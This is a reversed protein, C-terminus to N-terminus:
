TGTNLGISGTVNLKTAAATTLTAIVNATSGDSQLTLTEVGAVTLTAAGSVNNIVVTASDASGTVDNFTVVQGAIATDRVTVTPGSASIGAMTLGVTSASNTVASLGTANSFDMTAATTTNTVSVNEINKLASPTVSGTIVAYLTDDGAGGDLSDGSNLTQLSSSSIGGDFTDDGSDGTFKNTGTTLTFTEGGEM